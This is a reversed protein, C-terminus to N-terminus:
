DAVTHLAALWLLETLEPWPVVVPEFSQMVWLSNLVKVKISVTGGNWFHRASLTCNWPMSASKGQVAVRSYMVCAPCCPLVGMEPANEPTRTVSTTSLMVHSYRGPCAGGGGPGGAGGGGGCEGLGEGGGGCGLFEGGEGGGGLGEGGGGGGFDEGGGGGFGEGGGRGGGRSEPAQEM